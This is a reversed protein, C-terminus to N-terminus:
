LYTLNSITIHYIKLSYVYTYFYICQSFLSYYYSILYCYISTSENTSGQVVLIIGPQM